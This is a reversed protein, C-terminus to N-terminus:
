ACIRRGPYGRVVAEVCNGISPLVGGYWGERGGERRGTKAGKAHAM